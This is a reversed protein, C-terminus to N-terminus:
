LGVYRAFRPRADGTFGNAAGIRCLPKEAALRIDAVLAGGFPNWWLVESLIGRSGGLAVLLTSLMPTDAGVTPLAARRTFLLNSAVLVGALVMGVVLAAANERLPHLLSRLTM